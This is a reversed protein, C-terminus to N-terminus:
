SKKNYKYTTFVVINSLILVVYSSYSIDKLYIQLVLNLLAIVDFIIMVIVLNKLNNKNNKEKM